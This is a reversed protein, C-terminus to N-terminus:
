CHTMSKSPVKSIHKTVNHFLCGHTHSDNKIPTTIVNLGALDRTNWSVESCCVPFVPWVAARTYVAWCDSWYCLLLLLLLISLVLSMKGVPTQSFRNSLAVASLKRNTQTYGQWSVSPLNMCTYWVLFTLFETSKSLCTDTLTAM